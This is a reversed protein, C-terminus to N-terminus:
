GGVQLYEVTPKDPRYNHVWGDPRAECLKLIEIDKEELICYESHLSYVVRLDQPYRKLIEILESVKM